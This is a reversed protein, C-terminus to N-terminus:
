TPFVLVHRVNNIQHTFKVRLFRVFVLEWKSADNSVAVSRKSSKVLFAM